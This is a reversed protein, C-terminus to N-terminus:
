TPHELILVVRRLDGEFSQRLPLRSNELVKLMERNDELLLAVFERVGARRALRVLQDLLLTAAGRHQYEDAVTVAV